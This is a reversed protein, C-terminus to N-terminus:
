QIVRALALLPAPLEHGEVALRKKNVIMEPRGDSRMRLGVSVAGSEAPEPFGSLSLRKGKECGARVAQPVEHALVYVVSASDASKADELPVANAGVGSEQFAKVMEQAAASFEKGHLVAVSAGAPPLAKDYAFIKKFIAAQMKAPVGMAEEASAPLAVVLAVVVWWAKSVRPRRELPLGDKARSREM